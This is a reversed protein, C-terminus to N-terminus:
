PRTGGREPESAPGTADCVLRRGDDHLGPAFRLLRHTAHPAATDPPPPADQELAQRLRERMRGVAHAPQSGVGTLDGLLVRAPRDDTEAPDVALVVFRSGPPFLAGSGFRDVRRATASWVAFEVTTAPAPRRVLDVDVFAPEVLEDGPRYGALVPAPVEGHAHVAGLVTPLRRLGHLAGRALLLRDPTDDTGGRLAANIRDRETGCFACLAVLAAVVDAATGAARLGPEEALVRTVMRAYGDYRGDLVQRLRTRDDPDWRDDLRRVVARPPVPGSAREPHQGGPSTPRHPPRAAGTDAPVDPSTEGSALVSPVGAQTTRVPHVPIPVFADTVPRVPAAQASDTRRPEPNTPDPPDAPAPAPVRAPDARPGDPPRPGEAPEVAKPARWRDGDRLEILMAPALPTPGDSAAPGRPAPAVPLTAGVEQARPATPGVRPPWRHFTAPTTLTGDAAATVIDTCVLIPEGLATALGGFILGAAAPGTPATGTVVLVMPQHDDARVTTLLTALTAPPVPRGVIRFGTPGVEIEVVFGAAATGTAPAGTVPSGTDLLSWGTATRRGPPTPRTSPAPNPRTSPAPTPWVHGTGAPRGPPYVLWEYPGTLRTQDVPLPDRPITVAQGIREALGRAARDVVSRDAYDGLPLLRIGDASGGLEAGLVRSLVVFFQPLATVQPTSVVTIRDTEAPLSGVLRVVPDRDEAATRLLLADGVPETLVGTVAVTTAAM